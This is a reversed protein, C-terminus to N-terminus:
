SGPHAEEAGTRLAVGSHKGFGACPTDVEVLTQLPKVYSGETSQLFQQPDIREVATRPLKRTKPFLTSCSLRRPPTGAAQRGAEPAACRAEHRYEM